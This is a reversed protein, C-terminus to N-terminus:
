IVIRLMFDFSKVPMRTCVNKSSNMLGLIDALAEGSAAMANPLVGSDILELEIPLTILQQRPSDPIRAKFILYM